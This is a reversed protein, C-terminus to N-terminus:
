VTYEHYVSNNWISSIIQIFISKANFLNCLNIHQLVWGVLWTCALITLYVPNKLKPLVVLWPSPFSFEFWSYEEQFNIKHWTRRMTPLKHFSMNKRWKVEPHYVRSLLLLFKDWILILLYLRTIICYLVHCIRTLFKGVM